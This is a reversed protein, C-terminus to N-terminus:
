GGFITNYNIGSFGVPSGCDVWASAYEVTPAYVREYREGTHLETSTWNLEQAVVKMARSLRSPHMEIIDVKPANPHMLMPYEKIGKATFVGDNQAVYLVFRRLDDAYTKYARRSLEEEKWKFGRIEPPTDGVFMLVVRNSNERRLHRARNIAQVATAMTKGGYLKNLDIDILSADQQADGLNGRPDGCVVLGDVKEFENTGRDHRGYYGFKMKIKLSDCLADLRTKAQVANPYTALGVLADYIPSHTLLALELEEGEAKAGLTRVESALRAVVSEVRDACHADVTGNSMCLGRTFGKSRIHIASAPASGQVVVEKFSVPRDTIATEWQELVHAGTADLVVVPSEPLGSLSKVELSFSFDTHLILSCCESLFKNREDEPKLLEKLCSSLATMAKFARQSPMHKSLNWGNRVQNPLPKPPPVADDDFGQILAGLRPLDTKLLDLLEDGKVRRDYSETKSWSFSGQLMGFAISHFYFAGDPADANDTNMWRKVAKQTSNTGFLSVIEAQSVSKTAIIGSDEDIITIDPTLFRSMAHSTFLVEGRVAEPISAGECTGFNPCLTKAYKEIGCVGRRGLVAFESSVKEKFECYHMAGYAMRAPVSPFLTRFADFKEKALENSPTAFVVSRREDEADGNAKVELAGTAVDASVGLASYSKGAGADVQYVIMSGKSCAEVTASQLKRRIEDSASTIEIPTEAILRASALCQVSDAIGNFKLLDSLDGEVGKPAPIKACYVGARGILIKTCNLATREGIGMTDGKLPTDNVHPVFVVRPYVRGLETAVHHIHEVLGTMSTVNYAGLVAGKVAGIGILGQLALFDPAGEVIYLPAEKAVELADPISGFCMVEGAYSKSGGSDKTSLIMAKPRNDHPDGEYGWRRSVNVVKGEADRLAVLLPRNVFSSRKALANSGVTWAVDDSTQAVYDAVASPFCRASNLYTYVHHPDQNSIIEDWCRSVNIHGKVPAKPTYKKPKYSAEDKPAEQGFIRYIDFFFGKENCRYCWWTCPTDDWGHATRKPKARTTDGCSPCTLRVKGGAELKPSLGFDHAIQMLSHNM